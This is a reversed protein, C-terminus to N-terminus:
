QENQENLQRPRGDSRVASHNAGAHAHGHTGAYGYSGTYGYSGAHANKGPHGNRQGSFAALLRNRCIRANRM